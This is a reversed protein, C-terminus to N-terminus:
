QSVRYCLLARRTASWAALLSPAASLARRATRMGHHLSDAPEPLPEDDAGSGRFRASTTAAVRRFGRRVKGNPIDCIQGNPCERSDSFM